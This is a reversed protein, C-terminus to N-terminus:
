GAAVDHPTSTPAPTDADADRLDIIIELPPELEHRFRAIDRGAFALVVVAIQVTVQLSPLAAFALLTGASVAAALALAWDRWMRFRAPYANHLAGLGLAVLVWDHVLAQPSVWLVLAVSAAFAFALDSRHRLIRRTILLGGGLALAAGALLQALSTGPLVLDFFSWPSLQAFRGAATRHADGFSILAEPYALWADGMWPWTVVIIATVSVLLGGLAKRKSRDFLWWIGFGILLTPKLILLGALAGAAAPSRRRLLTFVGAFILLWFFSSQGVAIVSVGPLTLLVAGVGLWATRWKYGILRFAGVAAGIGALTWVTLAAGLGLFTLPALAAAFPPSNGFLISPFPGAEGLVLGYQRRFADLDYLDTFAGEVARRGATYFVAFDEVPLGGGVLVGLGRAWVVVGPVVAIM